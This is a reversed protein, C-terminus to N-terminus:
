ALVMAGAPPPDDDEIIKLAVERRHVDIRHAADIGVRVREGEKVAVIRVIALPQRPDGIVIEEGIRRSIVIM